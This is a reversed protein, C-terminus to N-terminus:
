KVGTNCEVCIRFLTGNIKNLSSESDSKEKAGGWKLEITSEIVECQELFRREGHSLQPRTSNGQLSIDLIQIIMDIMNERKMMRM